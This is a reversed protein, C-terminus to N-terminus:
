SIDLVVSTADDHTGRAVASRVLAEAAKSAAAHSDLITVMNRETLTETVGDTVLVVRDGAELRVVNVDAGDGLNGMGLYKCLMNRWHHRRADERTIAGLNVLTQAMNHDITYRHLEGSRLLYARSDGVSGVFLRNQAVLAVVVTTGMGFLKADFRATAHIEQDTDALAERIAERVSERDAHESPMLAAHHKLLDVAMQSAREGARCGGMGDTVLCLGRDVDFHFQDQNVQHRSGTVTFGGAELRLSPDHSICTARNHTSSELM